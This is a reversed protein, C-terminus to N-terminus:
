NGSRDGAELEIFEMVFTVAVDQDQAAAFGDVALDQVAPFTQGAANQLRITAFEAAPAPDDIIEVVM